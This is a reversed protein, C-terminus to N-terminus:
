PHNSKFVRPIQSLIVIKGRYKVGFFHLPNIFITLTFQGNFMSNVQIVMSQVFEGTLIPFSWLTLTFGRTDSLVAYYGLEENM